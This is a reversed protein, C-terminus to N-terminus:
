GGRRTIGAADLAELIRALLREVTAEELTERQSQFVLRFTYSVGFSGAYRDILSTRCSIERRRALVAEVARELAAQLGGYNWGSPQILSLDRTVTPFRSPRVLEPLTADWAAPDGLDLTLVAIRGTRYVEALRPHLEGVAGRVGNAGVLVATRGPHAWPPVPTDRTELPALGLREWVWTLAAKLDLVSPDPDKPWRASGFCSLVAGLAAYERITGDGRKGFVPGVEFLRLPEESRARNQRVTEVLGPVLSRRLSREDDRLPNVVGVHWPGDPGLFPEEREPSTFPRTIVEDYGAEAWSRKLAYLHVNRPPRGGVTLRGALPRPPIRDVGEIRLVEEALDHMGEVDPRWSPVTVVGGVVDFGLRELDGVVRQDDWDVGLLRRIREADFAFTQRQPASGVLASGEVRIRGIEEALSLFARPAALAAEPDTGKGFRLGAETELRHRRMSQYIGPAPFHAAELLVRRTEPRVASAMGGMVGALAVPGRRDCIVLDAPDLVREVGDLGDLREGARASRVTLPLEVTERDFVHLPQGLDWLVFNTLDVLPSIPRSGVACLLTQMWVPTTGLSDVDFAVLGYLPCEVTGILDRDWGYAFSPPVAPLPRKLIAALERALGLASQDFAALNPTLELDFVTDLGGVVTLLTTGVPEPGTWTWLGDGDSVVFGLEEASMLMGPSAVGRLRAIKLVRGDVLRTGPPGYWLRDGVFGNTAGTVVTVRSGDGRRVEVLSLHDSDPHPQRKVV